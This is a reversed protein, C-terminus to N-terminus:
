FGKRLETEFEQVIEDITIIGDKIAQEIAGRPLDEDEKRDYYMFSSVTDQITAIINVKIDKDSMTRYGGIGNKM